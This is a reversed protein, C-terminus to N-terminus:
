KHFIESALTYNYRYHFVHFFIIGQHFIRICKTEHEWQCATSLLFIITLCGHIMLDNGIYHLINKIYHILEWHIYTGRIYSHCCITSDSPHCRPNCWFCFSYLSDSTRASLLGCTKRHHGVSLLLLSTLLIQLSLLRCASGALRGIVFHSWMFFYVIFAM